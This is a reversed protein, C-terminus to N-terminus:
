KFLKLSQELEEDDRKKQQAKYKAANKKKIEEDAADRDSRLKLISQPMELKKSHCFFLVDQFYGSHGKEVARLGAGNEHHGHEVHVEYLYAEPNALEATSAEQIKMDNNMGYKRDARHALCLKPYFEDTSFSILSECNQCAFHHEINFPDKADYDKPPDYNTCVTMGNPLPKGAKHLASARYGLWSRFSRLESKRMVKAAKLELKRPPRVIEIQWLAVPKADDHRNKPDELLSRYVAEIGKQDKALTLHNQENHTWWNFLLYSGTLRPFAVALPFDKILQDQQAKTM